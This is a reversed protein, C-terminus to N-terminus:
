RYHIKKVNFVQLYLGVHWITAFIISYFFKIKTIWPADFIFDLIVKLYHSATPDCHLYFSGTTKLIRHMEIIRQTMYTIYSMMAKSHIEQISQIFRVMSPYKEILKELYAENVDEWGWMDKFSSGAAKSGVPASYMRKSNFPPDIYILDVLNSNLGHLVFLNDNTFLTNQMIM